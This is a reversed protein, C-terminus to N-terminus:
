SGGCLLNEAERLFAKSEEDDRYKPDAMIHRLRKMAADAEDSRGLQILTMALFAVDAPIGGNIEDARSLTELAKVYLGVRYQAVGLTNVIYGNDPQKESALEAMRLASRYLCEDADLRTVIRWSSRNLENPPPTYGSSLEIIRMAALQVDPDVDGSERLCNRVNDSLVHEEKMADVLWSAAEHIVCAEELQRPSLFQSGAELVLTNIRVDEMLSEPKTEETIRAESALRWLKCIYTGLLYWEKAMLEDFVDRAEETRGLKGLAMCIVAQGQYSWYSDFGSRDLSTAQMTQAQRLTNLADEHMGLRYQALGLLFQGGADRPDLHRIRQAIELAALYEERTRGREYAARAEQLAPTFNDGQAQAEAIRRAITRVAAPVGQYAELQELANALFGHKGCLDQVLGHARSVIERKRALEESVEVDVIVVAGGTWCAIRSGDPNFELEGCGALRLFEQTLTLLEIGTACDWLRIEGRASSALRRGDPSFAISAIGRQNGRLVLEPEANAPNLVYIVDEGTAVCALRSGDPSWAVPACLRDIPADRWVALEEGTQPDWIRLFGLDVEVMSKGDPSVAVTSRNEIERLLAGTQANLFTTRRKGDETEGNLAIQDGNGIFAAFDFYGDSPDIITVIEQGNRADWIKLSGDSKGIIRSGDPSFIELYRAEPMGGPVLQLEGTSADFVNGGAIIRGGDPSFRAGDLRTYTFSPNRVVLECRLAKHMLATSWIKITGDRSASAFRKGGPSFAVESIGRTHGFLVSIPDGTEVDWLRLASFSHSFDGLALDWPKFRTWGATYGLGASVFMIGNPAVAIASVGEGPHKITRTKEPDQFNIIRIVEGLEDSVGSLLIEVNHDAGLWELARAAATAPVDRDIRQVEEGTATNFIVVFRALRVALRSGDSAFAIAHVNGDPTLSREVKGNSTNWITVPSTDATDRLAAVYPNSSLEDVEAVSVLLKGDPSYALDFVRRHGAQLTMLTQGNLANWLRVSGDEGCSAFQTGDPSFAVTTVGCYCAQGRCGGTHGSLNMIEQGTAIDWLKVDGDCGGSLLRSGNPSYAISTVTGKHGRLTMLSQDSRAHLYHWEWHRLDEPCEELLRKLGRIDRAEYAASAVGMKTAYLTARLSEARRAESNRAEDATKEAKIARDREKQALTTQVQAEIRLSRQRAYLYSLMMTSATIVLVFTLVVIVPIRYRQVFKRARYTASPPSAKVPEHDLHRKIDDAFESATAYRRTRDKDMAKMTIWDLDGRLQKELSTRDTQRKAAVTGSEDGLSSVRTSPRPPEKERIVRQIEAIGARRLEAPEFPLVGALLQYLLVGLSYIDTRTDIDLATMEAQEPSMYEPTGILQGQETFLTKETLHQETAKAVGFDIVKVVAGAVAPSVGAGGRGKTGEHRPAETGVRVLVNSPKIDRHIIGKQHAHQVAHCVQMFLELRETTSLRHTDCYETIPVGAVHEMVFYPRGDETAGADFVRAVNPHDLLALAQRESEFRAIVHKTDMGLKILKLAVKRRIPETQEALYVIGMGGEGLVALIKFKGIRKPMLPTPVLQEDRKTQTALGGPEDEAAQRVKGLFNQDSDHGRPTQDEPM